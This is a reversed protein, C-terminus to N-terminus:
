NKRYTERVFGPFADEVVEKFFTESSLEELLSLHPFIFYFYFRVHPKTIRYTGAGIKEVLDIEMLNKLYVSIKARSFGTHAFIDNLKSNGCAMSSLITNYVAPERLEETLCGTMEAYVSSYKNLVHDILNESASKTADIRKWLGPIGGLVAYLQVSDDEDMEPFLANMGALDFERVKLIGSIAAAESGIKGIMHNEVWGSACTSLVVMMPRAQNKVFTVLKSFFDFDAKILNHFEDIVLILKEDSKYSAFSEFIEEYEPYSTTNTGSVDWEKAWQFRQERDSCARAVYSLHIKDKMFANLLATKGVGKQGYLVLIRNDPAKYHQDFFNLEAARGVFSM